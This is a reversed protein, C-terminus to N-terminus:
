STPVFPKKRAANELGREGNYKSRKKDARSILDKTIGLDALLQSAHPIALQHEANTDHADTVECCRDYIEMVQDWEDKSQNFVVGFSGVSVEDTFPLVTNNMFVDRVAREITGRMKTYATKVRDKTQEDMYEDACVELEKAAGELESMRDKWNATEWTLGQKAFGPRKNEWGITQYCIPQESKRVAKEIEALFVADHTLVLTHQELALTALRSAMHRRHHHDLSTSPDDFVVTSTNRQLRVEALFLALGMARQEGESLVQHAGNQCDKIKLTVMTQGVDTRGTIQPEVKRRYGLAKLEENMADALASTVYTDALETMKKSVRRTDLATYCASLERHRKADAIHREVEQLRASLGRRAMLSSREKELQAKAEADLSSRLERAQNRLATSKALLRMDLPDGDPVPPRPQSWDNATVAARVWSRRENWRETATTVFMQLEPDAAGLEELTPADVPNLNAAEVSRMTETMRKTTDQANQSAENAVFDSFLRLRSKAGADLPSQCLVCLAGDDVNPHAHAPYAHQNSFKEAAEFLAKWVNNGTGPLLESDDDSERQHLQQQALQWSEQAAKENQQRQYVEDLARDTVFRQAIQAATAAVELRDALREANRAEPEPNMTGLVQTLEDIRQSVDPTLTGLERLRELDTSAGLSALLRGTDHDGYLDAFANANLRMQDREQGIKTQLERQAAVLRNLHPLGFPQYDSAGEKTLYDSGCASDYVTVRGLAPESPGGQTWTVRQPNGDELFVIEASPTPRPQTGDFADSLVPQSHRASCANKLVRAYGSKGAGNEGFLVNLRDPALELNRGTPFRNVHQLNELRLLQVNRGVGDVRLHDATLPEARVVALAGNGHEEKVLDALERLDDPSLAGNLFLRRLADRQWITLAASWDLIDNLLAM